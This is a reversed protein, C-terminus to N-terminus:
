SFNINLISVLLLLLLLLMFPLLMLAFLLWCSVLWFRFHSKFIAGWIWQQTIIVGWLRDTWYYYYITLYYKLWWNMIVWRLFYNTHILFNLFRYINQSTFSVTWVVYIDFFWFFFLSFFIGPNKLFLVLTYSISFFTTYIKEGSLDAM